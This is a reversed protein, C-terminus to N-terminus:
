LLAKRTNWINRYKALADNYTSTEIRKECDGKNSLFYNPTVNQFLSKNEKNLNELYNKEWLIKIKSPELSFELGIKL